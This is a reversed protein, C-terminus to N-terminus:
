LPKACFAQLHAKLPEFAIRSWGEVDSNTCIVELDNIPKLSGQKIEEDKFHVDESKSQAVYLLGFHVKGVENSDDNIYGILRLDQLDTLGVEEKIERLLSVKIPDVSRMDEEDVHGGIGWSWKNHLRSENGKTSRQYAFVKMSPSTILVYAIPHKYQPNKEASGRKMPIHDHLLRSYFDVESAPKFGQFYDEKFLKEKDIAMIIKENKDM